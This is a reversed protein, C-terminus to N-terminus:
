CAGLRYQQQQDVSRGYESCCRFTYNFLQNFVPYTVGQKPLIDTSNRETETKKPM